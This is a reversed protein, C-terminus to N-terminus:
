YENIQQCVHLVVHAGLKVKDIKGSRLSRVPRAIDALPEFTLAVISLICNLWSIIIKEINKLMQSWSNSM